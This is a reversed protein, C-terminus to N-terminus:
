ARGMVPELGQQCGLYPQHILERTGLSPDRNGGEQDTGGIGRPAAGHVPHPQDRAHQSPGQEGVEPDPEGQVSGEQPELSKLTGDESVQSKETLKDIGAPHPTPSGM